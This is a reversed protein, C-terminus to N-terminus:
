RELHALLRDVREPAVETLHDRVRRVFPRWSSLEDRAARSISVFALLHVIPLDLPVASLVGDVTAFQGARLHADITTYILDIAADEDDAIVQRVHEVLTTPAPPAASIRGSPTEGPLPELM